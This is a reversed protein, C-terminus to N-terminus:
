LREARRDGRIASLFNAPVIDSRGSFGPLVRQESVETRRFLDKLPVAISKLQRWTSYRKCSRLRTVTLRETITGIDVPKLKVELNILPEDLPPERHRLMTRFEAVATTSKIWGDNATLRGDMNM